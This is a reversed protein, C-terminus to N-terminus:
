LTAVNNYIRRSQCFSWPGGKLFLDVSGTVASCCCMEPVHPTLQWSWPEVAEWVGLSRTILNQMRSHGAEESTLLGRHVQEVVLCPDTTLQQIAKQRVRYLRSDGLHAVAFSGEGLLVAALM